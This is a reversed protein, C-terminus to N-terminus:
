FPGGNQKFLWLKARNQLFPGSSQWFPGCKTWFFEWYFNRAVPKIIM